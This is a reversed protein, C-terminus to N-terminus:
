RRAKARDTTKPGGERACSKGMPQGNRAHTAAAKAALLEGFKSTAVSAVQASDAATKTAAAIAAIDGPKEAEIQKLTAQAAALAQDAATKTQEVSPLADASAKFANEAAIAA